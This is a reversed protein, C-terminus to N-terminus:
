LQRGVYCSISETHRPIQTNAYQEGSQVDLNASHIEAHIHVFAWAYVIASVGVCKGLQGRRGKGVKMAELMFM